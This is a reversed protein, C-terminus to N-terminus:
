KELSHAYNLVSRYCVKGNAGARLKGEDIYRYVTQRSVGLFEAVNITKRLGDCGFKYGWKQDALTLSPDTPQAKTATAM